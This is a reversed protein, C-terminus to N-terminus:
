RLDRLQGREVEGAKLLQVRLRRLDILGNERTKFYKGSYFDFYESDFPDDPSDESSEAVDQIASRRRRSYEMRLSKDM